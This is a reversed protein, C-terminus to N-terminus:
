AKLSAVHRASTQAWKKEHCNECFFANRPHMGLLQPQAGRDATLNTKMRRPAVGHGADAAPCWGSGRHRALCARRGTRRPTEEVLGGGGSVLARRSWFRSTAVATTASSAGAYASCSAAGWSWFSAGYANVLLAKPTSRPCVSGGTGPPLTCQTSSTEPIPNIRSATISGERLGVVFSPWGGTTPMSPSHFGPDRVGTLM